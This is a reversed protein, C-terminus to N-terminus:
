QFIEITFRKAFPWTFRGKKQFSGPNKKELFGKDELTPRNIELWGTFIVWRRTLEDILIALCEQLGL